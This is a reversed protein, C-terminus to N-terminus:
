DRIFTTGPLTQPGLMAHIVDYFALTEIAESLRYLPACNVWKEAEAFLAALKVEDGRVIEFREMAAALRAARSAKDISYM